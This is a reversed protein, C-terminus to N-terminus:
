TGPEGGSASQDPLWSPPESRSLGQAVALRPAPVAHLELVIQRKSVEARHLVLGETAALAEVIAAASWHPHESGCGDERCPYVRESADRWSLVNWSRRLWSV